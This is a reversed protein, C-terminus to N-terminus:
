NLNVGEEEEAANVRCGDTIEGFVKVGLGVSDTGGEGRGGGGEVRGSRGM